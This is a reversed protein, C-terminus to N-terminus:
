CGASRASAESATAGAFAAAGCAFGVAFLVAESMGGFLGGRSVGFALVVYIPLNLVGAAVAAARARSWGWRRRGYALLPGYLLLSFMASFVATLVAFGALDEATARDGTLVGLLLLGSICTVVATTTALCVGLAYRRM